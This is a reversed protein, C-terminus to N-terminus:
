SNAFKILKYKEIEELIYDVYKILVEKNSEIPVLKNSYVKVADEIM